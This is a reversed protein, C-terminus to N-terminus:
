NIPIKVIFTDKITYIGKPLDRNQKDNIAHYLQYIQM